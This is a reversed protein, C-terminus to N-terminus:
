LSFTFYQFILPRAVLRGFLQNHCGSFATGLRMIGHLSRFGELSPEVM